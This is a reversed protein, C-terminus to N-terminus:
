RQSNLPNQKILKDLDIITDEGDYEQDIKVSEPKGTLFNRHLETVQGRQCTVAIRDYRSVEKGQSDTLSLTIWVTSEAEGMFLYDGGIVMEKGNRNEFTLPVTFSVGLWSDCPTGEYGNFVTPLFSNYSFIISYTENTKKGKGKEQLFDQVDTAILRYAGQPCELAIGTEIETNWADRYRRLDLDVSGCLCARLPTNGVYPEMCAIETCTETQYFLDTNTGEKVYDMWVLLTYAVAHLKQRIPITLIEEELADAKMWDMQRAVSKGDRQVETIFRCRYGATSEAPPKLAQWEPPLSAQWKVGVLTPDVGEEGNETLSPYSHICGNLLFLWTLCCATLCSHLIRRKM